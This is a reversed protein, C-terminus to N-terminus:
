WLGIYRWWLLGASTWIALNIFSMLLGMRWWAGPSVYGASFIIPAPTTGYHTLSASLNTFFLMAYAILPVPAGAAMLVSLFPIYM